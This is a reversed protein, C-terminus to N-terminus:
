FILGTISNAAQGFGQGLQQVKQFTTQSTGALNEMLTNTEDLGGTAPGVFKGLNAMSGSFKDIKAGANQAETGAGAFISISEQSSAVFQKQSNAANVVAQGYSNYAQSAASLAQGQRQVKQLTNQLSIGIQSNTAIIAELSSQYAKWQAVAGQLSGFSID